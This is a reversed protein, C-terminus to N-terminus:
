KKVPLQNRREREKKVLLYERSSQGAISSNEEARRFLYPMVAEVPGYPVYKAVNYGENALNYSINDSMGLLQAFWIRSDNHAIGKEQMLKICLLCSEENHTGLCISLIDLHEIAYLIAKDFDADTEEKTIHIPSKYELEAARRREKEIYAGRVLKAGVKYNENRANDCAKILNELSEWRYLQYTNYVITKGGVNYKKMMEYCMEDIVDQIWTEEADLFIRVNLESARQCLTDVRSRIREFAAKDEDTLSEKFEQVKELIEVSGVGSVKFVSFPIATAQQAAKEITRSVEQTTKDFDKENDEGEVSYDLITGIKAKALNEIATQCTEISEGGCFQAFLTNKILFKVPLGLKLILKIFFTGIKVLWNQNMMAFILYTKYLKKNSQHAFAVSTDNFSLLHHQSATEM